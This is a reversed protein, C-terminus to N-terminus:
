RPYIFVNWLISKLWIEIMRYNEKISFVYEGFRRKLGSFISEMVCRMTYQVGQKWQEYDRKQALVAQRRSLCGKAWTRANKRVPIGLVAGFGTIANFSERTDYGGDGLIVDVRLWECGKLLQSVLKADSRRGTTVVCNLIKKSILDVFLHIKKFDRRRDYRRFRIVVWAGRRNIKLGSSDLGGLCITQPILMQNIGRLLEETLYQMSNQITKYCPARKLGLLQYLKLDKTASAIGRYSLGFLIKLLLLVVITSLQFERRQIPKDLALFLKRIDIIRKCENLRHADYHAWQIDVEKYRRWENTNHGARQM